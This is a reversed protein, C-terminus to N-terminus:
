PTELHLTADAPMGPKLVHDPNPIAVDVAYVLSVREEETLVEGPTFEAEGAITAVRGTFVRGPLSTVTISVPQGIQVRGIHRQPIYLVLTVEDLNVIRLLPQGAVATEGVRVLRDTVIGDLPARLTLQALHADLLELAADAESLAAEAVAIEEPMPGARLDNLHARALAVQLAALDAETEAQHLEAQLDLPNDRLAILAGLYARAGHLDAETEELAATAAQMRLDWTRKIDGGREAYVNRKLETAALEARAGEVQQQALAVQGHAEHIQADLTQPSSITEQNHLVAQEAGAHRAEAEALEAAAAAIEADHTGTQVLALNAKAVARAAETERRQALLTSDDLHLVMQDATVFDGRRVPLESVRGDTETAVRVEVGEIFGSTTLTVQVEPTPQLVGLLDQVTACGGIPAIGGLLGILLLGTFRIRHSACRASM